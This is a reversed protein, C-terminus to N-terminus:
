SLQRGFAQYDPLKSIVQYAPLIYKVNSIHVLQVKGASDVVEVQTNRPLCM